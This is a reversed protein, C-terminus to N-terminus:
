TSFVIARMKIGMYGSNYFIFENPATAEGEESFYGISTEGLDKDIKGKRQVFVCIINEINEVKVTVGNMGGTEFDVFNIKRGSFVSLLEPMIGADFTQEEGDILVKIVCNKGANHLTISQRIQLNDQELNRGHPNQHDQCHRAMDNSYIKEEPYIDISIENRLDVVAMLVVHDNDLLHQSAMFRVLSPEEFTRNDARIYLYHKFGIKLGEWAVESAVRFYAGGAVGHAAPSAGTARLYVKYTSETESELVYDGDDFVCCKVGQTGAVLLNEIMRYKKMEVSSRIKDGTGPVPIGFLPTKEKYTM